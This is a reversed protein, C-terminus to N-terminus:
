VKIGRQQLEYKCTLAAFQVDDTIEGAPRYSARFNDPKVSKNTENRVVLYWDPAGDPVRASFHKIRKKPTPRPAAPKHWGTAPIWRATPFDLRYPGQATGVVTNKVYFMVCGRVDRYDALECAVRVDVKESLVPVPFSYATDGALLFRNLEIEIPWRAPKRKKGM